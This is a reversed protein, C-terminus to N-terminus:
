VLLEPKHIHFGQMSDVGIEKLTNLIEESEVFEATVTIGMMHAVDTISQVMAKDIPDTAINKVFSGDIKLSSIPLQKLYSFSSFGSGFDDLAFKFGQEVMRKLFKSTQALNSIATSETIEFCIKEKPVQYKNFLALLEREFRSSSLTRSSININAQYLKNLSNPNNSLHALVANIVWLDLKEIHDFREAAVLFSGPLLIKHTSQMRVLVEYYDVNITKNFALINQQYLLLSGNDMAKSLQNSLEMDTQRNPLDKDDASKYVYVNNRGSDKAVYCATDALSMLDGAPACEKFIRVIGISIGISFVKDKWFFRYNAVEERLRNAIEEAIALDTNNLLIVFEDGGLRAVSDHSRVYKKFLVSMQKLLEDGASHGATDNVIKFQDLDMFLLAHQSDTSKSSKIASSLHQEFDLRNSLGTLMDHSAIFNLKETSKVKETIDIISADIHQESGESIVYKAHISGWFDEGSLKRCLVEFGIVQQHQSLINLLRERDKLYKPVLGLLNKPLEDLEESDEIGLMRTFAPNSDLLEGTISFSFIGQISGEYISRYKSLNDISKKQASEKERTEQNIRDALTFSLLVLSSAAGIHIANESFFTNSIAGIKNLVFILTGIVVMSFSLSFLTGKKYGKVSLLIGAAYSILTSALLNVSTIKIMAEYPLFFALFILALSVYALLYLAKNILPSHNKLSLIKITFLCFTMLTLNSAVTLVEKNFEPSNPWFHCYAFGTFTALIIGYGTSSISLYLYSVDKLSLFLLFNFVGFIFVISLLSISFISQVQTSNNLGNKSFVEIPFQNSSSTSIRFLVALTQQSELTIPFVFNPHKIPRQKFIQNDGTIFEEILDGNNADVLYYHINDLLSYNIKIFVNSTTPLKNELTLGLWYEKDTFGFNFSEKRQAKTKNLLATASDTSLENLESEIIHIFPVYGEDLQSILENDISNKDFEPVSGAFSSSIFISSFLSLWALYGIIISKFLAM